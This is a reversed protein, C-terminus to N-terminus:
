WSPLFMSGIMNLDLRQNGIDIKLHLESIKLNIKFVAYVM